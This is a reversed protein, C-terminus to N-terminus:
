GGAQDAEGGVQDADGGVQDAEGGAQEVEDNGGYDGIVDINDGGRHGLMGDFDPEETM